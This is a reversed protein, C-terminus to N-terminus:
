SRQRVDVMLLGVDRLPSWGLGVWVSGFWWCCTALPLLWDGLVVGQGLQYRSEGAVPYESISNGVHTDSESLVEEKM